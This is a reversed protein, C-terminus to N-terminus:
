IHILSLDIGVAGEVVLRDESLVPGEARKGFEYRDTHEIAVSGSVYGASAEGTISVSEEIYLDTIPPRELEILVVPGISDDEFVGVHSPMSRNPSITESPVSGDPNKIQITDGGAPAGPVPIVGLDAPLQEEDAVDSTEAEAPPPVLGQEIDPHTPSPPPPPPPVLGQEIDPHIPSHASPDAQYRSPMLEAAAATETELFQDSITRIFDAVHGLADELEKCPQFLKM